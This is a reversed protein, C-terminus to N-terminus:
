IYLLIYQLSARNMDFSNSENSSNKEKLLARLQLLRRCFHCLNSGLFHSFMLDNQNPGFRIAAVAGGVRPPDCHGLVSKSLLNKGLGFVIV